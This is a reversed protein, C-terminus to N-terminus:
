TDVQEVMVTRLITLRKRIGDAKILSAIARWAAKELMANVRPQLKAGRLIHGSLRMSDHRVCPPTSSHEPACLQASQRSCCVVRESLEM